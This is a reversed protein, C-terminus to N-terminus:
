PRTASVPVGFPSVRVGGSGDVRDAFLGEDRAVYIWEGDPSWGAFRGDRELVIRATLADRVVARRAATPGSGEWVTHAVLTSAPSWAFDSLGVRPDLTLAALPEGDATRLLVFAGQGHAYGGSQGARYLWAGVFRGDPSAA